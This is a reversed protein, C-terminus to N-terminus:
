KAPMKFFADDIPVNFEVKDLTVTAIVDGNQTQRTTFPVMRGDVNRYDLFETVNTVPTGDPARLSVSVRRELGTEADLYFDQPPGSKKTVRLRYVPKGDITDKGALEIRQGKEKYDVFVSDFEADQAAYAGETGPLSQPPRDDIAIWLTTGDFGNVSKRAGLTADRRMLNPRKATTVMTGKVNQGSMDRAVLSGSMRVTTTAKITELGGKSKLNAAIIDDLTQARVASPSMCVTLVAAAVFVLRRM